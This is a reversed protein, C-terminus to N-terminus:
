QWDKTLSKVVGVFLTLGVWGNVITADLTVGGVDVPGFELAHELAIWLPCCMAVNVANAVLDNSRSNGSIPNV